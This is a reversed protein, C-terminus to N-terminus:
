CYPGTQGYGSLSCCVLRSNRASLAAFDFGLRAMVGPRFGDLVVDAQDALRLFLDRGAEAKLNIAIARKNRNFVYAPHLREAEYGAFASTTSGGVREVTLRPDQILIVEAGLDGLIAGAYLGPGNHCLDIVKIGQLAKGM